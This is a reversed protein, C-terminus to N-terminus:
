APKGALGCYGEDKSLADVNQDAFCEQVAKNFPLKKERMCKAVADMFARTQKIRSFRWMVCDDAECTDKLHPCIRSKAEDLSLYM